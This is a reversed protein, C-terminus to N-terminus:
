ARERDPRIATTSAPNEHANRFDADGENPSQSRNDTRETRENHPLRKVSDSSRDTSRRLRHGQAADYAPTSKINYLPAEARILARERLYALDEYAFWELSVSAVDAAWPSRRRHQTWRTYPDGTTGIYLLKGASDFYRYVYFWRLFTLNEVPFAMGRPARPENM